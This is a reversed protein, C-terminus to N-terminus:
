EKLQTNRYLPMPKYEFDRYLPLLDLFHPSPEFGAPPAFRLFGSQGLTFVNEAEIRPTKLAVIQAYTARNSQPITAVPGVVPHTFTTTGRPATWATPDPGQAAALAALSQDFAGSMVAYPDAGNLYDRTPPVGSRGTLAFDLV